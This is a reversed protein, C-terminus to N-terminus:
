SVDVQCNSLLRPIKSADMNGKKGNRRFIVTCAMFYGSGYLFLLDVISLNQPFDELKNKM